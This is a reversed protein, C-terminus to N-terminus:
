KVKFYGLAKTLDEKDKKLESVIRRIDERLLIERNSSKSLEEILTDLKESVDNMELLGKKIDGTMKNLSGVLNQFQDKQRIKLDSYLKGSGIDAIYKEFRYMPGAIRHTM